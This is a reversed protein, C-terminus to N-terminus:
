QSTKRFPPLAAAPLTWSYAKPEDPFPLKGFDQTAPKGLLVHDAFDLLAAFDEANQEHKGQRFHM